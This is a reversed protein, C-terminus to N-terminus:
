IWTLGSVTFTVTIVQPDTFNNINLVHNETDVAVEEVSSGDWANLPDNTDFTGNAKMASKLEGNTITLEVGDVTISDWRIDCAAVNSKKLNGVTVDYDKIYVSTLNNLGKVGMNRSSESLDTSCDFTVTYTGDETIEIVSGNENNFCSLELDNFMVNLALRLVKEYVYEEVLVAVTKATGDEATITIETSGASVGTIKGSKNVKAISEDASAYTLKMDNDATADITVSEGEVVTYSDSDTTIQTTVKPETEEVPDGTSPQSDGTEEPAGSTCAVMGMVMVLALLLALM